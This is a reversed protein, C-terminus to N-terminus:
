RPPLYGNATLIREGEPSRVFDVFARAVPNLKDEKFVFTLTKVLPYTGSAVNELTPAVGNVKLAKV